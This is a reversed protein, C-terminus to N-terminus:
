EGRTAKIVYEQFFKSIRVKDAEIIKLMVRRPLRTRPKNSQHYKFYRTPNWIEMQTNTVRSQFNNKMAGTKDLIPHAYIRKRPKWGGMLHGGLSFNSSTTKLLQEKSRELPERFDNFKGDMTGLIRDLQQEGELNGSLYLM